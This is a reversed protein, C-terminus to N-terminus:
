GGTKECIWHNLQYCSASNVAGARIVACDKDVEHPKMTVLNSKTETDDIWLWKRQPETYTLGIFYDANKTKNHLFELQKKDNIIVLDSGLSDCVTRSNSWNEKAESFLYFKGQHRKWKPHQVAATTTARITSYTQPEPLSDTTQPVGGIGEAGAVTRLVDGSSIDRPINVGINVCPVEGFGLCDRCRFQSIRNQPLR